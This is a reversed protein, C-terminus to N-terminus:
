LHQAPNTPTGGGGLSGNDNNTSVYVDKFTPNPQDGGSSGVGILTGTYADKPVTSYSPPSLGGGLNKWGVLEQSVLHRWVTGADFGGTPSNRDGLNIAGITRFDPTYTFAALIGRPVQSADLPVISPLDGSLRIGSSAKPSYGRGATAAGQIAAILEAPSGLPRVDSM